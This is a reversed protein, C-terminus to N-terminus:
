SHSASTGSLQHLLCKHLLCHQCSGTLSWGQSKEKLLLILHRPSRITNPQIMASMTKRSVDQSIISVRSNWHGAMRVPTESTTDTTLSRCPPLTARYLSTLARCVPVMPRRHRSNRTSHNSRSRPVQSHGGRLNTPTRMLISLTVSPNRTSSTGQTGLKYPRGSLNVFCLYMSPDFVHILSIEDEQAGKSHGGLVFVFTGDSGMIHYARRHPSPGVNQLNFWRQAANRMHVLSRNLM